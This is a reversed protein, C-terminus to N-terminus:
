KSIKNYTNMLKLLLTIQLYLNLAFWFIGVYLIIHLNLYYCEIVVLIYVFQFMIIFWSYGVTDRKFKNIQYLYNGAINVNLLPIGNKPPVKNSDMLIAIGCFWGIIPSSFIIALGLNNYSDVKLISILKDINALVITTYVGVLVASVSMLTRISDDKSKIENLWFNNFLTRDDKTDPEAM